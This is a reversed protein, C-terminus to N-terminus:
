TCLLSVLGYMYMCGNKGLSGEWGPQPAANQIVSAKTSGSYDLFSSPKTSM